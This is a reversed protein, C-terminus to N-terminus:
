SKFSFVQKIRSRWFLRLPIARAEQICTLLPQHPIELADDRAQTLLREWEQVRTTRRFEHIYFPLKRLTDVQEQDYLACAQHLSARARQEYARHVLPRREVTDLYNQENHGAHKFAQEWAYFTSEPDGHEAAVYARNMWSLVLQGNEEAM